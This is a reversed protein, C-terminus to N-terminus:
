YLLAFKSSSNLVLVHLKLIQIGGVMPFESGVLPSFHSDQHLTLLVHSPAHSAKASDAWLTLKLVSGRQPGQVAPGM